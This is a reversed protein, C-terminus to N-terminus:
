CVSQHQTSRAIHRHHGLLVAAQQAIGLLSESSSESSHTSRYLVTCRELYAPCAFLHLCQRSLQLVFKVTQTIESATALTPLIEAPLAVTYEM